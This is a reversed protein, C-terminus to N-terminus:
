KFVGKSLYFIQFVIVNAWNELARLQVIQNLELLSSSDDVHTM